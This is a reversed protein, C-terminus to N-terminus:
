LSVIVLSVPRCYASYGVSFPELIFNISPETTRELSGRGPTIWYVIEVTPQFNIFKYGIWIVPGKNDLMSVQIRPIHYHTFFAKRPSGTLYEERGEHRVPSLTTSQSVDRSAGAGAAM